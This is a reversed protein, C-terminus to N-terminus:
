ITISLVKSKYAKELKIFVFFVVTSYCKILMVEEEIHLLSTIDQLLGKYSTKYTTNGPTLLVFKPSLIEPEVLLCLLNYVYQFWYFYVYYVVRM